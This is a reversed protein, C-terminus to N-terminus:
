AADQLQRSNTKPWLADMDTGLTDAIYRATPLLPAVQGRVLRYVSKRTMGLLRARDEDRHCGKAAFAAGWAATNVAIRQPAAHATDADSM